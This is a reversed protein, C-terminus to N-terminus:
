VDQAFFCKFPLNLFYAKLCIGAIPCEWNFYFNIVTSSFKARAHQTPDCKSLSNILILNNDWPVRNQFSIASTNYIKNIFPLCKLTFYSDSDTLSLLDLDKLPETRSFFKNNFSM